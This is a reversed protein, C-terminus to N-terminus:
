RVAAGTCDTSGNEQTPDVSCGTACRRTSINSHREGAHPLRCRRWVRRPAVGRPRLRRDGSRSRRRRGAGRGGRRGGRWRGGRGHPDGGGVRRHRGRAARATRRRADGGARRAGAAARDVDLALDISGVDVLGRLARLRALPLMPRGRGVLVVTSWQPVHNVIADILDLASTEELLHVDDLVLVFPTVTREIARGLALAVKTSAQTRTKAVRPLVRADVDTAGILAEALDSLLLGPDNHSSELDIWAVPRGDREAWLRVQTSKGYGAPACVVAGRGTAAALREAVGPCIALDAAASRVSAPRPRLSRDM